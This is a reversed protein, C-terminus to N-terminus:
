SGFSQFYKASGLLLMLSANCFDFRELRRDTPCCFFCYAPSVILDAIPAQRAFRFKLIKPRTCLFCIEFATRSCTWLKSYFSALSCSVFRLPHSASLICRKALHITRIKLNFIKLWSSAKSPTPPSRVPWWFPRESRHFSERFRGSVETQRYTLCHILDKNKAGM